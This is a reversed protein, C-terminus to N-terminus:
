LAAIPPRCSWGHTSLREDRRTGEILALSRTQLGEFLGTSEAGNYEPSSFAGTGNSSKKGRRYCYSDMTVWYVAVSCPIGTSGISCMHLPGRARSPIPGM